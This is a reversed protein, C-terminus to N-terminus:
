QQKRKNAKDTKLYSADVVRKVSRMVDGDFGFDGGNM